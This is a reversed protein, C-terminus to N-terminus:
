NVLISKYKTAVGRIIRGKSDKSKFMEEYTDPFIIIYVYKENPNFNQLLNDHFDSTINISKDFFYFIKELAFTPFAAVYIKRKPFSNQIFRIVKVDDLDERHSSLDNQVALNFHNLNSLTFIIILFSSAILKTKNGLNKLSFIWYFPIAMIIVLFPFAISFRHFAPPQITLVMGSFFSILIVFLVFFIEIRKFIIILAGVLGLLFLYFSLRNFLALRGFEYGGHGGIGDKFLSYVSDALSKKITQNAISKETKIDVSSWEGQILKVQNYREIFYNEHSLAQTAFPGFTIFFALIFILFSRLALIRNGKIFLALFFILAVPLAIYSSTYFLYCLGTLIGLIAALFPNGKKLLLLAVFFFSIFIATSSIFHLGFTELYLSPSLFAYLMASILALRKTFIEKVILYLFVTVIFSYPMTSLKVSLPNEGFFKFFLAQLVFYPSPFQTVWGKQPPVGGFFNTNDFDYHASYYAPIFEDAHIRESDINIIRIIAPILLIFLILLGKAFAKKNLLKKVKFGQKLIDKPLSALLLLVISTFWYLIYIHNYDDKILSYNITISIIISVTLLLFKGIPM